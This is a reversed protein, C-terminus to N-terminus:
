FKRNYAFRDHRYTSYRGTVERMDKERMINLVNIERRKDRRRMFRDMKVAEIKQDYMWNIRRMREDRERMGNNYAHDNNDYRNEVQPHYKSDPFSHRTQASVAGTSGAAFLMLLMKKM